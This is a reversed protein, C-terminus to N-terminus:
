NKSLERDWTIPIPISMRQGAKEVEFKMNPENKFEKNFEEETKPYKGGLISLVLSRPEKVHSYEVIDKITIFNTDFINIVETTVV